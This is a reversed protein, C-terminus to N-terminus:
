IYIYIKFIDRLYIKDSYQIREQILNINNEAKATIRPSVSEASIWSIRSIWPHGNIRPNSFSITFIEIKKEKILHTLYLYYKKM